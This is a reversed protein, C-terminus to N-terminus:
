RPPLGANLHFVTGDAFHNTFAKGFQITTGWLTGDQFQSIESPYAGIAASSSFPSLRRILRGDSPSLAVIDGYGDSGNLDGIWLNGDSAFLMTLPTGAGDQNTYFPFLQTQQDGVHFEFLGAGSVGYIEYVGYFNGHPGITLLRGQPILGNVKPFNMPVSQLEGTAETYHFLTQGQSGIETTGWFTQDAAVILGSPIGGTTEDLNVVVEYKGTSPTVRFLTGCPYGECTNSGGGMTTGYVNGDTGAVLAYGDVGDACNTESCFKHIVRFGSGDRNVRYLVGYGCYGNCGDNGGYVTEGYLKGDPGETLLGPLNGDAYNKDPGPVFTHLVKVRASALSFVTGGNPASDGEMSVQAAGYFKGDSGLILSEPRGGKPCPGSRQNQNGNCTFTYAAVAQLSSAYAYGTLLAVLVALYPTRKM